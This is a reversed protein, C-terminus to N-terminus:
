LKKHAGDCFGPNATQKCTCLYATKTEQAEFMLPTFEGGKHSGDCFPQNTSAGCTCWAYKKGAELHVLIPAKGAIKPTAM